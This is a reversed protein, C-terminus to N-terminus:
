TPMIIHNGCGGLARARRSASIRGHEADEAGLLVQAIANGAAVEDLGTRQAAEPQRQGVKQPVGRASRFGRVFWAVLVEAFRLGADQQEEVARRALEFERVHLRICGDLNAALQLRNAGRQGTAIDAFQQGVSRAHHVVDRDRTGDRVLVRNVSDGVGRGGNGLDVHRHFQARVIPPVPREDPRHHRMQFATLVGRRRHLLRHRVVDREREWEAALARALHM